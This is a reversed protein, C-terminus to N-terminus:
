EKDEVEPPVLLVPVPSQRVVRDATSGLLIKDMSSRGRTSRVIMGLDLTEVTQVIKSAPDGVSIIAKIKDALEYEMMKKKLQQLKEQAKEKKQELEDENRSSEIVFLIVVEKMKKQLKIFKNIIQEVYVSFDTPILVRDYAPKFEKEEYKKFKEVLVPRSTKRIVDYATSGLYIQNIISEGRAGILLFSIDEREALYLIEEEPFGIPVSIEVEFGMKTIKEKIQKLKEINKEKIDAAKIGAYRTDVVNVLLVNNVGINKLEQLCFKIKEATISFDIAFLVRGTLM